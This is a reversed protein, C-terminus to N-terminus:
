ADLLVGIRGIVAVEEAHVRGDSRAIDELAALVADTPTRPARLRLEAVLEPMPVPPEQLIAALVEAESDPIKLGAVIREQIRQLEAADIHGDARSVAMGLLLLPRWFRAAHYPVDPLPITLRDEGLVDVSRAETRSGFIRLSVTVEGVADIVGHPLFLRVEGGQVTGLLAFCDERSFRRVRAPLFDGDPDRAHLIALCGDPIERPAAVIIFGDECPIARMHSGLPPLDRDRFIDLGAGLAAGVALGWPGGVLGGVAGGLLAEWIMAPNYARSM